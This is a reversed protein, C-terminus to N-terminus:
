LLVPSIFTLNKLTNPPNGTAESCAIMSSLCVSVHILISVCLFTNANAFITHIIEPIGGCWVVTANSCLQQRRTGTTHYLRMLSWSIKSIKSHRLRLSRNGVFFLIKSLRTHRNGSYLQQSRLLWILSEKTRAIHASLHWHGNIPQIMLLQVYILHKFYDKKATNQVIQPLMFTKCTVYVFVYLLYCVYNIVYLM